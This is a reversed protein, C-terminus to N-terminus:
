ITFVIIRCYCYRMILSHLQVLLINFCKVKDNLLILLPIAIHSYTSYFLMYVTHTLLHIYVYTIDLEIRKFMAWCSPPFETLWMHTFYALFDPLTITAIEQVTRFLGWIVTGYTQLVIQPFRWQYYRAVCSAWRHTFLYIWAYVYLLLISHTSFWRTIAQKQHYLCGMIVAAPFVITIALWYAKEFDVLFRRPSWKYNTRWQLVRFFRIYEEASANAKITM